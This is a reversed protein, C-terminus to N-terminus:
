VLTRALNDLVDAMDALGNARAGVATHPTCILNRYQLLEDHTKAPEDYLMDLAAGAIPGSSLAAKLATREVLKARSINIRFSGHKM